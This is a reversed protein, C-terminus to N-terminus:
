DSQLRNMNRFDTYHYSDTRYATIQHSTITQYKCVPTATGIEIAFEYGIIPRRCGASCFADWHEIVMKIIHERGQASATDGIKLNKMLETKDKMKDYEILDTREGNDWDPNHAPKFACKGHEPYEFIGEDIDSCYNPPKYRNQM